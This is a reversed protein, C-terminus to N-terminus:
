LRAVSRATEEGIDRVGREVARVDDGRIGELRSRHRRLEESDEFRKMAGFAVLCGCPPFTTDAARLLVHSGTVLVFVAAVLDGRACDCSAASGLNMGFGGSACAVM